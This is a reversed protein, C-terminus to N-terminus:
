KEGAPKQTSRAPLLGEWLLQTRAKILYKKVSGRSEETRALFYESRTQSLLVGSYLDQRESLQWSFYLNSLNLNWLLVSDNKPHESSNHIIFRRVPRVYTWQFTMRTCRFNLNVQAGRTKKNTLDPSGSRPPLTVNSLVRQCGSWMKRKLKERTESLGSLLWKTSVACKGSRLIGIHNLKKRGAEPTAVRQQFLQKM